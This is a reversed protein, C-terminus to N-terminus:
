INKIVKSTYSPRMATNLFSTTPALPIPEQKWIPKKNKLKVSTKSPVPIKEREAIEISQIKTIPSLNKKMENQNNALDIAAPPSIKRDSCLLFDNSFSSDPSGILVEHERKVVNSLDLYPLRLISGEHRPTPEIPKPRQEKNQNIQPLHETNSVTNPRPQQIPRDTVRCGQQSTVVRTSIRGRKKMARYEELQREIRLKEAAQAKVKRTRQLLLRRKTDARRGLERQRQEELDVTNKPVLTVEPVDPATPQIQRSRVRQKTLESFSKVKEGLSHRFMQVKEQEHKEKIKQANRHVAAKRRIRTDANIRDQRLKKEQETKEAMEREAKEREVNNAEKQTKRVQRQQQTVRAVAREQAYKKQLSTTSTDLPGIIHWNEYVM